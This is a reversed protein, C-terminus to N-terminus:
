SKVEEFDVYEGEDDAFRKPQKQPESQKEVNERSSTTRRGLGFLRAVVQLFSFGLGLILFLGFFLLVFLCGLIQM